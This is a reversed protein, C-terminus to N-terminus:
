NKRTAYKFTQEDILGQNKMDFFYNWPIGYDYDGNKCLDYRNRLEEKDLTAYYKLKEAVNSM